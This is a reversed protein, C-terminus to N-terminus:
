VGGMRDVLENAMNREAIPRDTRLSYQALDRRGQPGLLALSRLVEKRIKPNENDLLSKLYPLARTDRLRGLVIALNRVLYWKGTRARRILRPVIGTSLNCLIDVLFRRVSMNEDEALSKLISELADTEHRRAFSVISLKTDQSYDKVGALIDSFVVNYVETHGKVFDTATVDIMEILELKGINDLEDFREDIRKDLLIDADKISERVMCAYIRDIHAQPDEFFGFAVGREGATSLRSAMRDLTERYGEGMYKDEDMNLLYSELWQWIEGSFGMKEGEGGWEHVLGVLGPLADPTIFRKAFESIREEKAGGLSALGALMSALKDGDVHSMLAKLAKDTPTPQSMLVDVLRSMENVSLSQGLESLNNGITARKTDSVSLLARELMSGLGVMLELFEERTKPDNSFADRWFDETGLARGLSKPNGAVEQLWRWIRKKREDVDRPTPLNEDTSIRSHLAELDLPLISIHEVNREELHSVIEEGLLEKDSLVRAFEYVERENVDEQWTIRAVNRHYLQRALVELRTERGGFFQGGVILESGTVGVSLGEEGYGEAWKALRKVMATLQPHGDPYIGVVRTLLLLDRAMEELEARLVALEKERQM